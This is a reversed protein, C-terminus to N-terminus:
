YSIVAFEQNLGHSYAYIVKLWEQGFQAYFLSFNDIREQLNGSPFLDHKLKRIQRVNTDQIKKEARLMKKELEDLQKLAKTKLAQTHVTLTPDITATIQEIEKYYRTIGEKQQQIQLQHKSERFIWENVLKDEKKFMDLQSFGKQQIKQSQAATMWLFSNRLILVPYPVEAKAFVQKLELWYALEGGGGVFAIDPLITEQFVGRLIVNASFREPHAELELIIEKQNFKLNLNNVHYTEGILEIRERKDEILYFLNLQRGETQINYNKGLAEITERVEQQSFQTLLEKEVVSQFRKKLSPNDPVLVLLGFDAFLQSVLELTAQQITKGLTYCARFLDILGDAHPHIGVRGYIREIIALFAKDIKMRGVAGTQKTDWRIKEDDLYIYGLEDLDADESGMYYFPIFQHGPLSEKLDDALKIVHIIKYIFYLPGTFINPQHATTVTFSNEMLLAQLNSEQKQSLVIGKYQECLANYLLSRDTPFGKRSEISAKIGELDSTHRYFPKVLESQSLYDNVITSFFSTEQYKLYNVTCNM